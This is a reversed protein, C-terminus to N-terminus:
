ISASICLCSVNSHYPHEVQWTHLVRLDHVRIVVRAAHGTTLLRTIGVRAGADTVTTVLYGVSEM